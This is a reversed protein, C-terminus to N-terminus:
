RFVFIAEFADGGRYSICMNYLWICKVFNRLISQFDFCQASIKTSKVNQPILQAM